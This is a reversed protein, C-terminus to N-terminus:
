MSSSTGQLKGMRRRSSVSLYGADALRGSFRDAVLLRADASILERLGDWDRRNFREVYLQLNRIRPTSLRPEVSESQASALRSWGRDLAAKVGGVTSDVLEAVKGAFVRLCGETPRLGAGEPSPQAGSARDRARCRERLASLRQDSRPMRRVLRNAFWDPYRSPRHSGGRPSRLTLM